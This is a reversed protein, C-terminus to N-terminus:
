VKEILIIKMRETVQINEEGEKKVRNLWLMKLTGNKINVLWKIKKNINVIISQNYEKLIRLYNNVIKIKFLNSM